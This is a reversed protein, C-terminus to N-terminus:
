ISRRRSDVTEAFRGLDGLALGLNSHIRAHARRFELARRFSRVAEEVRTLGRLVNGLNNHAEAYDPKLALARGYSAAAQELRGAQQLQKAEALLEAARETM